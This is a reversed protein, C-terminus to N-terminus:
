DAVSPPLVPDPPDTATVASVTTIAEPLSIWVVLKPEPVAPFTLRLVSVRYSSSPSMEASVKPGPLAPFISISVPVNSISPPFIVESVEISLVPEPPETLTVASSMLIVEKPLMEVVVLPEPDPPSTLTLAPLM